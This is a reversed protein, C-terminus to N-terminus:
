ITFSFVISTGVSNSALSSSPEHILAVCLYRQNMNYIGIQGSLKYINTPRFTQLFNSIFLHISEEQQNDSLYINNEISKNNTNMTTLKHATKIKIVTV